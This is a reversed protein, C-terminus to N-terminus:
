CLRRIDSDGNLRCENHAYMSSADFILPLDTAADTSTNGDWLDEHVIRPQIDRGSTELPRLLRPIVKNIISKFLEQMEENYGHM